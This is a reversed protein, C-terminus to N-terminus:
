LASFIPPSLEDSTRCINPHRFHLNSFQLKIQWCRWFLTALPRWLPGGRWSSVKVYCLEAILMAKPDQGWSWGRLLFLDILYKDFWEILILFFVWSLVHISHLAHIILTQSTHKQHNTFMTHKQLCPFCKYRCWLKSINALKTFIWLYEYSSM